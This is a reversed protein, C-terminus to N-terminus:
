IGKIHNKGLYSLLVWFFWFPWKLWRSSLSLDHCHSWRRWAGRRRLTATRAACESGATGWSSTAKTIRSRSIPLDHRNVYLSLFFFYRTHRSGHGPFVFTRCKKAASKLNLSINNQQCLRCCFGHDKCELLQCQWQRCQFSSGISRTATCLLVPKLDEEMANALNWISHFFWLLHPNESDVVLLMLEVNQRKNSAMQHSFTMESGLLFPRNPPPTALYPGRSRTQNPEEQCQVSAVRFGQNQITDLAEWIDVTCSIIPDWM